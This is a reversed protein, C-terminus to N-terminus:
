VYSYKLALVKGLKRHVRFYLFLQRLYFDAAMNCVEM